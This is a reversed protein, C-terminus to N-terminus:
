LGIRKNKKILELYHEKLVGTYEEVDEPTVLEVKGFPVKKDSASAYVIKESSAPSVTEHIASLIKDTKGPAELEALRIDKLRTEEEVGNKLRILPEMVFVKKDEPLRSYEPLKEIRRKYEEIENKVDVRRKDVVDQIKEKLNDTLTIVKKLTNNKYPISELMEKLKREDDVLGTELLNDRNEDFWDRLQKWRSYQTDKSNMFTKLPDVDEIMIRKLKSRYTDLEEVLATKDKNNIERLTGIVPPLFSLFPLDHQENRQWIELEETVALLEKKFSITMEKLKEGTIQKHFIDNYFKKFDELKSYDVVPTPIVRTQEHEKRGSLLVFVEDRSKTRSGQNFEISDLVYLKGLVCAIAWFYWGYQRTSFEEFIMKVTLNEKDSFKRTIFALMEKESEDMLSPDGTYLASGADPYFIKKLSKEAYHTRLMQLKTYGKRILIQFGEELREKPNGKRCSIEEGYVYMDANGALEKIKTTLENKRDNNRMMKDSIIRQLQSNSDYGTHQRCYIDTQFYLRLEKMFREGASLFVVLEKKGMSQNLVTNTNEYEPHFPTILHIALDASGSGQLDGDIIRKYPYDEEIDRYRIKGSGLVSGFIVKDIFKRIEDHSVTEQKIENEVDQEENTLYEYVLGNRQIYTERELIDLAEQIENDLASLDQDLSEVLLVRLHEQTAKFDKVYKVLLLIKLLKAAMPHETLNREALNIAKILETNLTGRIGNFMLDFSAWHFLPEDKILVAVDQFIELMSREGRSVHRGMFANHTSLGKLSEQLLNYQYAQFPYSLIFQEKNKFQLNKGGHEFRFLTRFTESEKQFLDGLLARGEETKDLLRKQIVEQVDASSLTVRYHFRAHIKSYDQVNSATPDGFISKLDEQSTVFIWVRGSCVTAFTEALTQLNLMRKSEGAIFQGVEDIFFNLRFTPDERSDLWKKVRGAFGEITLSSGSKYHDILSRADDETMSLSGEVLTKVLSGRGIGFAKSRSATWEKGTISNYEDKFTEYTGEEFLHREFEAIDRSEPFFGQMKNFVREFIYLIANEDDSKAADAQQDINFLISRSPVELIKRFNARVIEDEIKGLFIEALNQGNATKNEMLYALMKLHHSKGSGFYGSIWVGNYAYGQNRKVADVSASYGSILKDLHKNIERTIVYEEVEQLINGEDDAKVVGDITRDIKKKLITKLDTM